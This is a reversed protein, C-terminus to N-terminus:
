VGSLDWKPTMELTASEKQQTFGNFGLSAAYDTVSNYEFTTLRRSLEKIQLAKYCPTYQRLLSILIDDPSFIERIDDLVAMSDHRCGPLIMHRIIVGKTMMGENDFTPRGVQSFMEYIAKKVIEPYNEAGSYKKALEGSHYKFDPLYIDVLGSLSKLSDIDEYGGCNYVVPIYLRSKVRKLAEGIKDSFHTPTVLNINHAGKDQLQLIIECLRDTTIEKGFGERSIPTNQCFICKLSCGSFFITGSGRKGSICPEEGFHLGARAIKLGAVGCVGINGNERDAGCKRPCLRCEM